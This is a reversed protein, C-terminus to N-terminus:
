MSITRVIYTFITTETDSAGDIVCSYVREPITRNVTLEVSFDYPSRPFVRRLHDGKYHNVTLHHNIVLQNEIADGIVWFVNTPGLLHKKKIVSQNHHSYFIRVITYKSLANFFHRKTPM